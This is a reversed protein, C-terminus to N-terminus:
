FFSEERQQLSDLTQLSERSILVAGMQELQRAGPSRDDFCFVPSWRHRLNKTTGSWTGGAGLACQAVLTKSGLCHIVRNRSLARQATFPLDYGEESLYLVGNRPQWRALADAVVSIVRGGAELCANQATQDAGRANGSILVYGQKAAQRGAEGAFEWNERALDRSGVLAIGPADLISLDGKAWLCGPCDMGLGRRLRAPYGPSVRTIPVCGIKQGRYLYLELLERDALLAEIRRAAALDCGMAGIDAATLKRDPEFVGRDRVRAALDRLQPATLPRRKPDGLHSTLLLFGAERPNM